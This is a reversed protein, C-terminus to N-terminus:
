ELSAKLDDASVEIGEAAQFVAYYPSDTNHFYNELVHLFGALLFFGIFIFTNRNQRKIDM